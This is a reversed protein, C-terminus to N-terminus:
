AHHLQYEERRFRAVRRHFQGTTGPWLTSNRGTADLYWSKCGGTVWVTKAMRRDLDAVFAAQADPRPEIATAGTRRLHHLAGLVHEIQAEMMLLVSSHGLGTSPGPILFLNPFGAVTTGV